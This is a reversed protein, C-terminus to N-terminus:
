LTSPPRVSRGLDAPHAKTAQSADLRDAARKTEIAPLRDIAVIDLPEKRLMGRINVTPNQLDASIGIRSPEAATPHDCSVHQMHSGIMRTCGDYGVECAGFM